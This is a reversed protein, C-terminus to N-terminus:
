QATMGGDLVLTQGTVFKAPDSCLYLVAAAIEEPEGPRGVPQMFKVMAKKASATGLLHDTLWRALPSQWAGYTMASARLNKLSRDMMPTRILGPCVANVRVGTAAYEIAVTRTLQIVGGKAAAYAPYGREAVLGAVSATNVIAGGKQKVMIRMEEKMCLWVGKLDVALVRDFNEDSAELLPNFEGETGANNFACDLRGFRELLVAFTARVDEADSVDCAVAWAQGGEQQIRDMTEIAGEKDIDAVIVHAGEHAFALATARGIGYAGGTIFVVKDEFQRTM